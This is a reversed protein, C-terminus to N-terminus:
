RRHAHQLDEIFQKVEPIKEELLAHVRQEDFIVNNPSVKNWQKPHVNDKYYEQIAPEMLELPLDEAQLREVTLDIVDQLRLTARPESIEVKRIEEVIENVNNNESTTMNVQKVVDVVIHQSKM